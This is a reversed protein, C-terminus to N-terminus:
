LLRRLCPQRVVQVSQMEPSRAKHQPTPFVGQVLQQLLVQTACSQLCRLVPSRAKHQPTPFVNQVLQQQL